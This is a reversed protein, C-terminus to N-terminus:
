LEDQKDLLRILFNRSQVGFPQNMEPADIDNLRIKIEKEKWKQASLIAM